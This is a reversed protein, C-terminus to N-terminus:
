YKFFPSSLIGWAKLCYEKSWAAKSTRWTKPGFYKERTDCNHLQGFTNFRNGYLIIDVRHMGQELEPVDIEYPSEVIMMEQGGDIRIGVVAGRYNSVALKGYAKDAQFECHYTVNGGYFPFLQRTLDGFEIQQPKATLLKQTGGCFVGFDGLLYCWELQTGEGFPIKVLLSNKGTEVKDIAFTRLCADLFFQGNWQLLKGNWYIECDGTDEIALQVNKVEAESTIEYLLSLSYPKQSSQKKLWPQPFSETRLTWGFGERLADELQLVEQEEQWGQATEEEGARVIKWKAIDLLLVNPESLSYSIPQKLLGTHQYVPQKDVPAKVTKTKEEAIEVLKLLLSDQEFWTRKLITNGSKYSTGLRKKEGSKACYQWVEFCGSFTFQLCREAPVTVREQPKGVAIFVWRCDKEQRTQVLLQNEPTGDEREIKMDRYPELEELIAKQSFAIGWKDKLMNEAAREGDVYAPANGLWLVKGGRKQWNQLANLTTSRITQLPPVLVVQYEMQGVQFGECFAGEKHLAPLESEAIFDFDLQNFLLWETLKLFNEELEQRASFTQSMPGDELWYSEIPHIVGIRVLAEGRTMAVNIRAFYDEIVSYKEYWPSHEDIPAPYDRKAEGKMSMWSLHHVRNTVGLAAQWDGQLKHGLFDFDWNTVGYLESIVGPCGYQHSASQAQKVTNYEYRNALMDVGPLGFSRYQRMAEGLARTQSGLEAEEMVHGTLMLNHEGCWKGLVDSYSAAFREAICDHFDYRVKPRAEKWEWFLEPLHELLSYGYKKQFVEELEDTYPLKLEEESDPFSFSDQQSFQPEDTFIAPITNAFQEGLKHYYKEHVEQIFKETAKPNLTDTYAQNNFWPSNEAIVLYAYWTEIQKAFPMAAEEPPYMKYEKLYGNEKEVAYVALMRGDGGIALRTMQKPTKQKMYGDPKKEKSFLIFRNRYEPNQTVRGGGAGSPWKDEDYLWCLMNEKEATKECFDACDLFETGMFETELGIRSHIHFGGMGMRKFIHIQEELREKSLKTNWAWFPAGRYQATPNQFLEESFPAKKDEEFLM